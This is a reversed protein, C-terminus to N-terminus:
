VMEKVTISNNYLASNKYHSICFTLIDPWIYKKKIM